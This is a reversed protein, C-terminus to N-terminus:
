KWRFDKRNAKIYRKGKETLERGRSTKQILGMQILFPEHINNLDFDSTDVLSKITNRSLPMKNKLLYFLIKRDVLNLGDANVGNVEMVFDAHIDEIEKSQEAAAADVVMRAYQLAIRPTGKSRQALFSAIMPNINSFQKSILIALEPVSYSTLRIKYTFRDRLPGRVLGVDTTAGILTWPGISQGDISFDQMPEYLREVWKGSLNHIEDIYIVKRVDTEYSLLSILAGINNRSSLDSGVYQSFDGHMENCIARALSTKGLGAGGYLLIHELQKEQERSAKIATSIIDIADTQGVLDSLYIKTLIDEPLNLQISSLDINTEKPKRRALFEQIVGM